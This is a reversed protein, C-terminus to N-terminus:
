GRAAPEGVELAVSRFGHEAALTVVARRLAEDALRGVPAAVIAVRDRETVAADLGLAALAARLREAAEGRGAEVSV